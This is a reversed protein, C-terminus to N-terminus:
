NPEQTKVVPRCLRLVKHVAHPNRDRAGLERDLWSELRRQPHVTAIEILIQLKGNQLCSNAQGKWMRAVNLSYTAFYSSSVQTFGRAAAEMYRTLEELRNSQQLQRREQVEASPAYPVHPAPIPPIPAYM